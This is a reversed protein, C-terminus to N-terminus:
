AKLLRPDLWAIDAEDQSEWEGSLLRWDQAQRVLLKHVAVDRREAVARLAVRLLWGVAIGLASAAAVATWFSVGSREVLQAGAFFPALAIAVGVLLAIMAPIRRTVTAHMQVTALAVDAVPQELTLGTVRFGRAVERNGRVLARWYRAVARPSDLEPVASAALWHFVPQVRPGPVDFGALLLGLRRTSPHGSLAQRYFERLATEPSEPVSEAWQKLVRNAGVIFAAVITLGAVGFFLADLWAVPEAGPAPWHPPHMALLAAGAFPLAILPLLKLLIRNDRKVRKFNLDPKLAARLRHVPGQVLPQKATPAKARM